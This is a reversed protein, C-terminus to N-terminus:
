RQSVNKVEQEWKSWMKELYSRDDSIGPANEAKTNEDTGHGDDVSLKWGNDGYLEWFEHDPVDMNVALLAELTETPEPATEVIASITGVANARAVNHHTYGGGGLMLVPLRKSQDNRVDLEIGGEEGREVSKDLQGKTLLGDGAMGDTGMVLVVAQPDFKTRAFNVVRDWVNLITPSKAGPKLPFNLAHRSSLSTSGSTPYFGPHNLHISLTLVSPSYLFASQVADGHHIDIDVVLVRVFRERLKQVALVVDNVYCFGAAHDRGAHHRGGDWWIAVDARDEILEAAASLSGGAVYRCYTTLGPFPPSDYQLRYEECGAELDEERIRMAASRKLNGFTKGGPATQDWSLLFDIYDSSHFAKLDD